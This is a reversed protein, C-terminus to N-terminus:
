KHSNTVHHWIKEIWAGGCGNISVIWNAQFPPDGTSVSQGGIIRPQPEDNSSLIEEPTVTYLIINVSILVLNHTSPM